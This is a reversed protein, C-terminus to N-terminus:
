EQVFQPRHLATQGTLALRPAMNISERVSRKRRFVPGLAKWSKQSRSISKEVPSAETKRAGLPFSLQLYTKKGPQRRPM